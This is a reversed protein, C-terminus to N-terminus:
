LLIIESAFSKKVLPIRCAGKIFFNSKQPKKKLRGCHPLLQNQNRTSSRGETAFSRYKSHSVQRLIKLLNWSKHWQNDHSKLLMISIHDKLM